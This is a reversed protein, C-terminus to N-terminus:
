TRPREDPDPLVDAPLLRNRGHIATHAQYVEGLVAHHAPKHTDVETAEIVWIRFPRRRPFLRALLQRFM